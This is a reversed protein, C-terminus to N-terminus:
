DQDKNAFSKAMKQWPKQKFFEKSFQVWIPHTKFPPNANQLHQLKL